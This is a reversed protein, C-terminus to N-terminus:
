PLRKGSFPNWRQQALVLWATAGLHGRRYYVIDAPAAPDSAFGTSIRDAAADNPVAALSLSGPSRHRGIQRLLRDSAANQGAARQALAVQASGEIWIGDLDDNFDYGRIPNTGAVIDTGRIAHKQDIWRLARQWAQPPDAVALLPWVQVDLASTKREFTVGDIGTGTFFRGAEASWARDVFTRAAVAGDRWAAVDPQRSALWRYAAVADLNHETSKWGYRTPQPEFGFFGGGVGHEDRLTEVFRMAAVAADGYGAKGTAQELTLLALAAWIVNGSASGAQYPDEFWRAAAADWWGHVAPKGDEVPGARYANRLRGDQFHRDHRIALVLADGIRAARAADNCAVLATVALAQDYTFAAGTLAPGLTADTGGQPEFSRVFVPTGAPGARDVQAGLQRCSAVADADRPAANATLAPLLLACLVLATRSFCTM